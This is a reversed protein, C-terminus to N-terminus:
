SRDISSTKKSVERSVVLFRVICRERRNEARRRPGAVPMRNKEALAERGAMLLITEEACSAILSIFDSEVTRTPPNPKEPTGFVSM